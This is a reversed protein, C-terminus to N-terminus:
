AEEEKSVQDQGTTSEDQVQTADSSEQSDSEDELVEELEKRIAMNEYYEFLDPWEETDDLTLIWLLHGNEKMFLDYYSGFYNKYIQRVHLFMDFPDDIEDLAKVVRGKDGINYIGLINDTSRDGTILQKFFHRWGSISDQYWYQEKQQGASWVFHFGEIMHLDKDRSCIITTDFTGEEEAFEHQRIGLMDDAEIGRVVHADYADILHQRLQEWHHPKTEPRGGKYPLITAVTLRFNSPSHTLYVEYQDTECAELIAQIRDDMMSRCVEFPLVEDTKNGDEDLAKMNGFEYPLIDGDILAIKNM